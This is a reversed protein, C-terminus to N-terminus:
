RCTEYIGSMAEKFHEDWYSKYDEHGPFASHKALIDEPSKGATINKQVFAVADTMFDKMAVLDDKTGIRLDHSVAHGFIFKTDTDFKGIITDLVTIWKPADAGDKPRIVPIVKNFILDGMHVINASEIHYIVDNSTHGPGYHYAYIKDKGLDITYKKDFLINAYHQQDLTEKEAARMKQFEPCKRHAIIKDTLGKFVINGETHDGHHHTNCVYLIPKGKREAIADVLPQITKPFQTDIVVFGAKTEMVGVTGGRNAYASINNRIPMLLGDSVTLPPINM